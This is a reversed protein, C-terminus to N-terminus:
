RPDWGGLVFVPDRWREAEAPTLQRSFPARGAVDLRVGQLDTSAFEWFRVNPAVTANNLQWGEARIHGGMANDLFVVQSHPFVNPDIRSLYAGTVGAAGTLRSQVFVFGNQGEGNRVQTYVAGSTVAKIECNLFYAAGSGWLFDVDGEIYSDRLFASGNLLITDQFSRFTVREV